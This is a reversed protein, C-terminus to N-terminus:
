KAVADFFQLAPFFGEKLLSRLEELTQRNAQGARLVSKGKPTSPTQRLEGTERIAVTAEQRM